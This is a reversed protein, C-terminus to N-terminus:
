QGVRAGCAARGIKKSSNAFQLDTVGAPDNGRMGYRSDISFYLLSLGSRRLGSIMVATEDCKVPEPKPRKASITAAPSTTRAIGAGAVASLLRLNKSSM